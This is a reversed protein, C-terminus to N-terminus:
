RTKAAAGLLRAYASATKPRRSPHKALATLLAASFAHPLDARIASPDPPDERLHAICAEAMTRNSFPPSGVASEYAVCGLAYVDSAPTAQAGKVVEPALYDITGVVRGARTLTSHSAGRAVGFDTLVAGSRETLIINSPKVDRHILRRRHLEELASAVHAVARAMDAVPLPGDRLREALSPGEAYGAAIFLRGDIEGSEHLGVLHPHRVDGAIEAERHFRRVYTEDSSLASRLVKVAVVTGDRLDVARYVVATHGEGLVSELRYPGFTASPERGRMGTAATGRSMPRPLM